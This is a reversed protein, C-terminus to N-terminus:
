RGCCKKHKKGSGCPCPANRGVRRQPTIVQTHPLSEPALPETWYGDLRRELITPEEEPLEATLGIAAIDDSVLLEALRDWDKVRRVNMSSMTMVLKDDARTCHWGVVIAIPEDTIELTWELLEVLSRSLDFRIGPDMDRAGPLLKISEQLFEFAEPWEDRKALRWALSFVAELNHPDIEFAKRWSVEAELPRGFREEANGLRSWAEGSPRREALDRLHAIAQSPRRTITGDWLESLGVIVRDEQAGRRKSAVRELVGVVYRSYSREGLTYDDVAGCGDCEVIRSLLVGDWQDDERKVTIPDVIAYEFEREFSHGCQNCVLELELLSSDPDALLDEPIPKKRTRSM